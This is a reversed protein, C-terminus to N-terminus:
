NLDGAVNCRGIGRIASFVLLGAIVIASNPEPVAVLQFGNIYSVLNNPERESLVEILGAGGVVVEHFSHTVLYGFSNGPM